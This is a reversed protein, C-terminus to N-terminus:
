HEWIFSFPLIEHSDIIFMNYGLYILIIYLILYVFIKFHGFYVNLYNIVVPIIFCISFRFYSNMRTVIWLQSSFFTCLISILYIICFFYKANYLSFKEHNNDSIKNLLLRNKETERIAIIYIVAIVIYCIMLAVNLDSEAAYKSSTLFREYQSFYTLFLTLITEFFNALILVIIAVISTSKRDFHLKPFAFFIFIMFLIATNHILSAVIVMIAYKIAKKELLLSISNLLIALAMYQRMTNMTSAFFLIIFLATSLVVDDSYKYFAKGFSACIFFSMFLFLASPSAFFRSLFYTIFLYGKEFQYSLFQLGEWGNDRIYLYSFEYNTTDIGVTNARFGSIVAMLSFMIILYIKKNRACINVNGLVLGFILSCFLLSMLLFM